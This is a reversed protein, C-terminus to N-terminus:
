PRLLSAYNDLCKMFPKKQIIVETNEEVRKIVLDTNIKYFSITSRKTQLLGQKKCGNLKQYTEENINMSKNLSKDNENSTDTSINLSESNLIDDVDKKLIYEVNVNENRKNLVDYDNHFGVSFYVGSISQISGYFRNRFYLVIEDNIELLLIKLPTSHESRQYILNKVVFSM